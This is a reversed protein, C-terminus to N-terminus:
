SPIGAVGLEWAYSSHLLLLTAAIMMRGYDAAVWWEWLYFLM